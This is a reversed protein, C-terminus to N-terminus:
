KENWYSVLKDYLKDSNENMLRTNDDFKSDLKINTYASSKEVKLGLEEVKSLLDYNRKLDKSFHEQNSLLADIIRENEKSLDEFFSNYDSLKSEIDTVNNISDSKVLIEDKFGDLKSLTVDQTSNITKTTESIKNLVDSENEHKQLIKNTNDLNEEKIQNLNNNLEIQNSLISMYYNEREDKLYDIEEQLKKNEKKLTENKESVKEYNSKYFAYSGSLSLLRDKINSLM